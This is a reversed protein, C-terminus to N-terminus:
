PQMWLKRDVDVAKISHVIVPACGGSRGAENRVRDNTRHVAAAQNGDDLDVAM